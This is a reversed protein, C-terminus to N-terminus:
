AFVRCQVSGVALEQEVAQPSQEVAFASVAVQVEPVVEAEAFVQAKM